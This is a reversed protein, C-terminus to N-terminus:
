GFKPASDAFATFEEILDQLTAFEGLSISGYEHFLDERADVVAVLVVDHVPLNSVLKERSTSNVCIRQLSRM